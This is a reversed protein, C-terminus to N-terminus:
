RWSTEWMISIRWCCLFNRDGDAILSEASFGVILALVGVSAIITTMNVGRITLGARVPDGSVCYIKDSQIVSCLGPETIRM